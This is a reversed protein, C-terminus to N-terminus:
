NNDNRNKSKQYFNTHEYIIPLIKKDLQIRPDNISKFESWGHFCKRFKLTEKGKYTLMLTRPREPQKLKMNQVYVQASKYALKVEIESCRSGLWIFVQVGNDLIMIDDDVLDDQCFDSCKESVTFYGKDNSCRFLRSYSMFSCDNDVTFKGFQQKFMEPEFGENIVTMPYQESPYMQNVVEKAVQVDDDDAASGVWIFVHNASQGSIASEIKLIYIFASYLIVPKDLNLQITRLTLIDCNSRLHYFENQSPRILRESTSRNLDRRGLIFLSNGNSIHYFNPMKKNSSLDMNSAERGQWFYVIWIQADEDALDEAEEVGDQSDTDSVWYYRCLFFYCEGSFFHGLEEEPLKKFTKNELVFAEMNILDENWEQALQISEEKTVIPQRPMFLANLDYKFDSHESLWKNMDAGIKQVSEATRTFDVAVIEDWTAFRSKFSQTEVGELCRTVLAFEPRKIMAFMEQALKLAAARVLRASKRGVWIYVDTMVDMIYVNKSEFYSKSLQKPKYRIQPLELYGTGLCVQYLVPSTPRFDEIGEVVFNHAMNAIDEGQNDFEIWFEEPEQYQDVFELTTKNKREEKKIKEVLLRAKQKVTNKSRKGNWVFIKYGTDLIFVFRTDLSRIDVAVSEMYLQQNSVEHLRYLRTAVAVEEVTYFGSLTRGGKIYTIGEPFLSLFQESEEGQEERITRCKASLYNRLNVAHIAACAKKDLSTDSGIWYYIDWDPNQNENEFTKLIIYCDAEYFKGHCAEDLRSPYFNDIEWILIGMFQGVDDEFFDSYDLPPKELSEEWRKPKLNTDSEYINVNIHENEKALETMAKLVKSSDSENTMEKARRVLRLKRAIPDKSPTNMPNLGNGYNTSAKCLRNAINFDINYINKNSEKLETPKPPLILDPNDNLDLVKLDTLFYIADPLTVLKNKSLILKKLKGCRVVGEPILELNNNSAMFIELNYLKGISNPIGDFVLENDNLYLCRLRELKSLLQPLSKLRNRSLNLVELNFWCQDISTSIETIQNDSLNLRKLSTLTYVVDPIRHLENSSLNLETLNTLNDLSTPMNQLTRQTNSLNLSQLSHLSQLLKLQNHGLPNNSLNLIQLNVLRRMQPPLTVLNNDSLNLILLDTLNIFLHNPITEIQNNSLNLVLLTRCKELDCPISKLCNHSLDLVFLEELRFLDVPIGNNNIRNHRLILSRLTKLSSLEGHLTVLNNKAISLSELKNLSAMEEPIWDIQSSDLKLWRLGTMNMVEKPFKEEQFNNHSFDIGRVFPLVRTSGM